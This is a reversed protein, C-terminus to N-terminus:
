KLQKKQRYFIVQVYKRSCIKAIHGPFSGDTGIGKAAMKSILESETLYNPPEIQIAEAARFIFKPWIELNDSENYHKSPLQFNAAILESLCFQEPITDSSQMRFGLATTM